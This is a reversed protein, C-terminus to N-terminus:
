GRLLGKQSQLNTLRTEFSTKLKKCHNEWDDLKSQINRIEDDIQEPTKTNILVERTEYIELKGDVAKDM